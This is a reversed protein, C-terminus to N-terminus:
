KKIGLLEVEFILTANPGIDRGAGREGHALHPPLVLRYVSGINMLQLGEAWGALVGTVPFAVPKGRKSSNEFETGDVLMGRYHVEVSDKPGPKPGSGKKVVEYQLGSATTVVGKKAKNAALFEDSAKRNKASLAEAKETASAQMRMSFAKKIAAIQEQTLVPERGKVRDTIGRTFVPVNVEAELTKIYDGVDMGLVYSLSDEDTRLQLAKAGGDQISCALWVLSMVFITAVTRKM